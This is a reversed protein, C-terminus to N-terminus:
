RSKGNTNAPSTGPGTYDNSKKIDRKLRDDNKTDRVFKTGNCIVYQENLDECVPKGAIDSRLKELSDEIAPNSKVKNFIVNARELAVKNKGNWYRGDIYVERLENTKHQFIKEAVKKENKVGNIYEYVSEFRIEDNNFLKVESQYTIVEDAFANHLSLCLIIKLFFKM